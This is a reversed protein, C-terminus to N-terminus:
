CDRVAAQFKGALGAFGETEKFPLTPNETLVKGQKKPSPLPQNTPHNPFPTFLNHAHNKPNTAAPM